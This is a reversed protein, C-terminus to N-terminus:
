ARCRCERMSLGLLRLDLITAFGVFVTLAWVHVSEVVPYMYTSGHLAASGRTNGLWECLPVPSM